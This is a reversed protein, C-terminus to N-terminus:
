LSSHWVLLKFHALNSLGPRHGAACAFDASLDSRSSEFKLDIALAQLCQKAQISCSGQM